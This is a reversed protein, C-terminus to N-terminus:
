VQEGEAHKPHAGSALAWCLARSRASTGPARRTGPSFPLDLSSLSEPVSGPSEAAAGACRSSGARRQWSGVRTVFPKEEAPFGVELQEQKYVIGDQLFLLLWLPLIM